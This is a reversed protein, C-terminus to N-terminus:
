DVQFAELDRRGTTDIVSVRYRGPPKAAAKAAELSAYARKGDRWCCSVADWVALKFTTRARREHPMM